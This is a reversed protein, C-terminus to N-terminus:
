TAKDAATMVLRMVADRKHPLIGLVCFDGSGDKSFDLVALKLGAYGSTVPTAPRVPANGPEKKPDVLFEWARQLEDDRKAKKRERMIQRYRTCAEEIPHRKLWDPFAEPAVNEHLALAGVEV